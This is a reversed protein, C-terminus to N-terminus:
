TQSDQKEVLKGFVFVASSLAMEVHSVSVLCFSISFAVLSCSTFRLVMSAKLCLLEQVFRLSDSAKSVAADLMVQAVFVQEEHGFLELDSEGIRFRLAAFEFVSSASTKSYKALISPSQM